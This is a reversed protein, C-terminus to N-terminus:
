KYKRALIIAGLIIPLVYLLKFKFTPYYKVGIIRTNKIRIGFDRSIFDTTSLLATHLLAAYIRPKKRIPQAFYVVIRGKWNYINEVGKWKKIDDVIIEYKIPKGSESHIRNYIRFCDAALVKKPNSPWKVKPNRLAAGQSIVELVYRPKLKKNEPFYQTLLHM